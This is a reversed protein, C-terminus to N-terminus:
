LPIFYLFQQYFKVYGGGWDSGSRVPAPADGGGGRSGRWVSGDGGGSASQGFASPRRSNSGFANELGGGTSPARTSKWLAPAAGEDGKSAANVPVSVPVRGTPGQKKWEGDEEGVGEQEFKVETVPEAAKRAAAAEVSLRHAEAAEARLAEVAIAKEKKLRDLEIQTCTFLFSLYIFFFSFDLSAIKKM